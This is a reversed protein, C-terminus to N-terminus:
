CFEGVWEGVFPIPMRLGMNQQFGFAMSYPASVPQQEYMPPPVVMCAQEYQQEYAAAVATDADWRAGMGDLLSNIGEAPYQTSPYEVGAATADICFDQADCPLLAAAEFAAQWEASSITGHSAPLCPFQNVLPSSTPAASSTSGTYAAPNAYLGTVAFPTNYVFVEEPRSSTSAVPLPPTPPFDSYTSSSPSSSSSPGSWSGFSSNSAPPVPLSSQPEPIRIASAGSAGSAKTRRPATGSVYAHMSRMHRHFTSPDSARFECDKCALPKLGSHKSRYHTDVNSKQLSKHSCGPDPCRHMRKERDEPSMHRPLHRRLDTKTRFSWPCGNKPCLLSLPPNPPVKGGEAPKPPRSTTPTTPVRPM